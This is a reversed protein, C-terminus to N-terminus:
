LNLPEIQSSDIGGLLFEEVDDVTGPLTVAIMKAQKAPTLSGLQDGLGLARAGTLTASELIRGPAVQPALRRM